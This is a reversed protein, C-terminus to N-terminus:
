PASGGTGRLRFISLDDQGGTMSSTVTEGGDRFRIMELKENSIFGGEICVLEGKGISVSLQRALYASLSYVQRSGEGGVDHGIAKFEAPYKEKFLIALQYATLFPRGLHHDPKSYEIGELLCMVKEAVRHEVWKSTESMKDERRGSPELRRM